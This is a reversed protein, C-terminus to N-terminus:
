KFKKLNIKKLSHAVISVFKNSITFNLIIFKTLYKHM